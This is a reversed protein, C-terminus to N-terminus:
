RLIKTDPRVAMVCSEVRYACLISPPDFSYIRRYRVNEANPASSELDGVIM